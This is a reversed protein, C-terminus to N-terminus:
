QNAALARLPLHYSNIDVRAVQVRLSRGVQVNLLYVDHCVFECRGRTIKNMGARYQTM